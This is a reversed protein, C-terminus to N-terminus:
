VGYAGDNAGLVAFSLYTCLTRYINIRPHNWRELERVINPDTPNPGYADVIERAPNPESQTDPISHLEIEAM